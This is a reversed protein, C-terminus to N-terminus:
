INFRIGAWLQLSLAFFRLVDGLLLAASTLSLLFYGLFVLEASFCENLSTASFM